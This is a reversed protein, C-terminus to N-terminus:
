EASHTSPTNESTRCEDPRAQPIVYVRRLAEVFGLKHAVRLSAHNDEGCSWVPVRGQEQVKGVVLSGAATPLGHGRWEKLTSVAVDAHKQGLASTYAIAILRGESIAGAVVGEELMREDTAWGVGGRIEAAAADLMALDALELARVAEHEFPVVPRALTHYVDGYYGVSWGTEEVLAGLRPACAKSTNVCWWGRAMKLLEWLARADEGFGTPEGPDRHSQVILGRFHAPDGAVYADCLGHSLLNVSIVTDPRDGLADVLM